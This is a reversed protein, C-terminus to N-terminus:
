RNRGRARRAAPSRPTRPAPPLPETVTAPPSNTEASATRRIRGDHTAWTARQLRIRELLLAASEEGPDQHVLQGKFARSLVAWTFPCRDMSARLTRRNPEEAERPCRTPKRIIESTGTSFRLKPSMQGRLPSLSTASLQVPAPAGRFRLAPTAIRAEARPDGQVRFSFSRASVERGGRYDGDVAETADPATEPRLVPRVRAGNTLAGIELRKSSSRM